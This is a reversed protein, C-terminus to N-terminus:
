FDRKEVLFGYTSTTLSISLLTFFINFVSALTLGVITEALPHIRAAVSTALLLGLVGAFAVAINMLFMGLLQWFNGHAAALADSFRFDGRGLAVAPLKLSLAMAFTGALMLTPLVLLSAAPPLLATILLVALSPILMAAVVGLSNGAYLWVLRDLRLGSAPTPPEDRLVFRNWNVAISSFAVLGAAASVLQLPSIDTPLAEAAPTTTAIEAIALGLLIVTWLLSIRMGVGRYDGVSRLAHRFAKLPPLTRDQTM